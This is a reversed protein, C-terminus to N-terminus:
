YEFLDKNSVLTGKVKLVSDYWHILSKIFDRSEKNNGAKIKLAVQMHRDTDKRPFGIFVVDDDIILFNFYYLDKFKYHRMRVYDDEKLKLQKFSKIRLSFDHGENFCCEYTLKSKKLKIQSGLAIYYDLPSDEQGREKFTTVRIMDEATNVANITARRINERGEIIEHYPAQLFDSKLKEFDAALKEFNRTFEEFKRSLEGIKEEIETRQKLREYGAEILLAGLLVNIILYQWELQFGKFAFFYNIFSYIIGLAGVSIPVAISLVHLVRKFM